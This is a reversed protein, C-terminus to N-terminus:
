RADPTLIEASHIIHPTDLAVTATRFWAVAGTTQDLPELRM